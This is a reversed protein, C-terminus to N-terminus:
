YKEKIGLLFQKFTVPRFGSAASRCCSHIGFFFRSTDDLNIQLAALHKPGTVKILRSFSVDRHASFHM